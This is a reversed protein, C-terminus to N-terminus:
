IQGLINEVAHEIPVGDGDINISNVGDITRPWYGLYILFPKLIHLYNELKLVLMRTLSHPEFVNYLVVLHNLILREKLDDQDEYRRFLRKIYKIRDIDQQFELVDVCNPNDYCKAAFLLFNKETLNDLM